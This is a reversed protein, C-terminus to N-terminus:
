FAGDLLLQMARVANGGGAALAAQMQEASFAEEMGIELLRCFVEDSAEEADSRIPETLRSAAAEAPAVAGWAGPFPAALGDVGPKDTLGGLSAADTDAPTAASASLGSQTQRHPSPGGAVASWCAGPEALAPRWVRQVPPAAAAGAAPWRHLAVEAACADADAPTYCTRVAEFGELQPKVPQWMGAFKHIVFAADHTALTPHGTRSEARQICLEVPMDLIVAATQARHARALKVWTARQREDFNSRDILVSKGDRLACEVARECAQRNGLTDQNAVAWRDPDNERVNASFTSKGSGPLGVVVLVTPSPQRPQRQSAQDSPWTPLPPTQPQIQIMNTPIFEQAFPNM